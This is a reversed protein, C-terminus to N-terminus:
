KRRIRIEASSIEIQDLALLGSLFADPYPVLQIQMGIIPDVIFDPSNKPIPETYNFKVQNWDVPLAIKHITYLWNVVLNVTVKQPSIISITPPKNTSINCRYKAEFPDIFLCQALVGNFYFSQIKPREATFSKKKIATQEM